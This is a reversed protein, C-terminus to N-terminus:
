CNKDCSLNIKVRSMVKKDRLSYMIGHSFSMSVAFSVNKAQSGTVVRQMTNHQM